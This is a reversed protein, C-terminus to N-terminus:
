RVLLLHRVVTTQPAGAGADALAVRLLYSGSAVARGQANRGDWRLIATGEPMRADALLRVRRGAPDFIEARVWRSQPLELRVEAAPNFPNPAPQGVVPERVAPPAGTATVTAVPGFGGARGQADVIQVRYRLAPPPSVHTWSTAAGTVTGVLEGPIPLHQANPQGYVRAQAQPTGVTSPSWQVLVGSFDPVALTTRPVAPRDGPDYSGGYIGLDALSGDFDAAAAPDGADIAPSGWVLHYDGVTADAFGPSLERDFAGASTGMVSQPGQTAWYLNYLLLLPADGGKTVATPANQLFVCDRVTSATVPSPAFVYVGGGAYQGQNSHFVCHEVAATGNTLALGGAFVAAVNGRLLVGELRSGPASNEIRGGAAFDAHNDQLKGGIWTLQGGSVYAGGGGGGGSGGGVAVNSVLACDRLEVSAAAAYLGGGQQANCQTVSCRRLILSGVGGAYIAGGTGVGRYGTLMCDELELLSGGIMLVAGGRQTEVTVPVYATAGAFTCRRIQVSAGEAFLDCGEKALSGQFSCDEVALDSGSGAIAGGRAPLLGNPGAVNNEFRCRTVRAQGGLVLLGGGLYRHEPLYQELGWGGRVILDDIGVPGTGTTSAGGSVQLVPASAGAVLVSPSLPDQTQYAADWGGSLTVGAPVIFNGTQLEAARIRVEDGPGAAALAAAVSQFDLPVRNILVSSFLVDLRTSNGLETIQNLLLDTAQGSYAHLGPTTSDDVRQVHFSGPFPDGLDGRGGAELQCLGDAEILRVLPHFPAPGCAENRNNTVAEDIHWVLLGEGPLAADFGLRRRNEILLYEKSAHAPRQIKYAVDQLEIPAIQLAFVEGQLAVPALFGLKIKCWADFHAPTHGGDNWVGTSMLSWNGIGGSSGDLDYLDPMGGLAHGFEHCFVGIDTLAQGARYEPEMTYSGVEVGDATTTNASYQHSWLDNPSGSQEAGAGAHVVFVGDVRSRGNRYNQFDVSADAAAIADIALAQANHPLPGLGYDDATGPLGDTNCYWSRPHPMRLWGVVDGIIQLRGYSNELYFETLSGTSVIGTSFLLRNYDSQSFRGTAPADFFDVLLVLARWTSQKRLTAGPLAALLPPPAPSTDFFGRDRAALLQRQVGQLAGKAALSRALGPDMAMQALAPAVATSAALCGAALLLTGLAHAAHRLAGPLGHPDADPHSSIRPDPLRV